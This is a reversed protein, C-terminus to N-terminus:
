MRHVSLFTLIPVTGPTSSFKHQIYKGHVPLLSTIIIITNIFRLTKDMCVIRLARARVCVCVCVCVCCVCVRVCARVCARARVHVCACVCM